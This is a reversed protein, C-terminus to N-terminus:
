IRISIAICTQHNCSHTVYVNMTSICKSILVVVTINPAVIPASEVGEMHLTTYHFNYNILAVNNFYHFIYHINM